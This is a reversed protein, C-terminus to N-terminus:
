DCRQAEEAWSANALRLIVIEAERAELAARLREVDRRLRDREAETERLRRALRAARTAEATTV